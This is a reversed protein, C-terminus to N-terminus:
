KHEESGSYRGRKVGPAVFSEDALGRNKAVIHSWADLGTRIQEASFGVQQGLACLERPARLQFHSAANASVVYPTDYYEVLERLKRLNKLAQVRKGGSHGLVAGFDFEIHVGHTKAARALVHNVDGGDAMPRTLVDVRDTEVAYRNLEDTGGRVLLVTCETRFNGVSGAASQPNDARIEIGNVIDIGYREATEDPDYDATRSRVVVGDYGYHAATRAQRSVTSDGDPYASVAEYM